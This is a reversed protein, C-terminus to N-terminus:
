VRERCSARGIKPANTYVAGETANSAQNGYFDMEAQATALIGDYPTAELKMGIRSNRPTFQTRPNDGPVTNGVIMDPRAISSNSSADVYSQTSDRFIDFEAFGYFTTKWNFGAAPVSSGDPTVIAPAPAPMPAVAAPVPAQEPEAAPPAGAPAVSAKDEPEEDGKPAAQATAAFVFTTVVGLAWHTGHRM